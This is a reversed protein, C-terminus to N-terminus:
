KGRNMQEIARQLALSVGVAYEFQDDDSCKVEGMYYEEGGFCIDQTEPENGWVPTYIEVVTYGGKNLLNGFRMEADNKDDRNKRSYNVYNYELTDNNKGLKAFRRYHTIDIRYGAERLEQIKQTTQTKVSTNNYTNM